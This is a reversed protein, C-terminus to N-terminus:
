SAAAGVAASTGVEYGQAQQYSTSVMAPSEISEAPHGAKVYLRPKKNNEMIIPNNVRGGTLAPHPVYGIGKLMLTRKNMAVKLRKDEILKDLAISNVWGGKFGTVGQAVAEMIEQEVAGMSCKIAESTSTTDPAWVADVAPNFEAPIAYSRLFGNVAAFGGAKAWAWLQPFYSGGMGDRLMDERSQQATYFVCLRRDDVTKRAADKHNSFMMFNARNDGTTQDAGKAQLPVRENTILPKIAEMVDTRLSGSHIEEVIVLLKRSIWATFVNDLDKPNVQQTYKEGVCHSLFVSVMSKGNGQVGQLIPAWQFKVGVHQVCAAMYALLISRDRDDPLLRAILGLFLAPDETTAETEIPVYTNIVDAGEHTIIVGPPLEPRFCTSKVRPFHYAQSETFAEWASRTPKTQSTADMAFSYGGFKVRFQESKLLDGTDPVFIRHEDQVYACGTFLEVQLTVDAFQFGCRVTGVTDDPTAESPKPPQVYCGTCGAVAGTITRGSYYDGRDDWKDRMLGSMRFIRDMRDCNGGTWWALHHCLAQDASSHDFARGQGGADPYAEGLAVPDAKWLQKITATSGVIGRASKSRLMRRILEKDDDPGKWDASPETTWGVPPGDSVAVTTPPFYQSIFTKWITLPPIILASGTVNDGTLACFRGSTYFQSGLPKNDCGHPIHEPVTGFIHLGGGSQSVEIACGPFLGCLMNATETWQGGELCDDIDLFFFPDADTFVFAAPLGTALAETYSVHHLTDHADVAQRTYPSIPIKDMKGNPKPILKYNIFQEYDLLGPIM